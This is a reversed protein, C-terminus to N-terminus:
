TRRRLADRNQHARPTLQWEDFRRQTLTSHRDLDDTDTAQQELGFNDIDDGRQPHHDVRRAAVCQHSQHGTGTPADATAVQCCETPPRPVQGPRWCAVCKRSAADRAVLRRAGARRCVRGDIRVGDSSDFRIGVFDIVPADDVREVLQRRGALEGRGPERRRAMPPQGPESRLQPRQSGSETLRQGVQDGIDDRRDTEIDLNEGAIAVETCRPGIEIAQDVDGGLERCSAVLDGHGREEVVEVGSCNLLSAEVTGVFGLRRHGFQALTDVDPAIAHLQEGNVGRLSKLPVDHADGTEDVLAKGTHPGAVDLTPERLSARQRPRQAAIAAPQRYGVQLAM